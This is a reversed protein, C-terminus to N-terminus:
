VSCIVLMHRFKLVNQDNETDSLAMEYKYKSLVPMKLGNKMLKKFIKLM